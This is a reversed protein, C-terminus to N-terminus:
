GVAAFIGVISSAMVVSAVVLAGAMVLSYGVPVAEYLKATASSTSRSYRIIYWAAWALGMAALTIWCAALPYMAADMIREYSAASSVGSVGAQRAILEGVPSSIYVSAWVLGFPLGTILAVAGLFRCMEAAQRYVWGSLFRAVPM